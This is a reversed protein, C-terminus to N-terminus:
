NQSPKQVTIIAFCAVGEGLGVETLGEGTTATIGVQDIEIGMTDAINQRMEPITEFFRPRKAEISVAVHVIEQGKLTKVAEQLYVSSDTIGDNFCLEDAIGGLILIGTISSIANCIAHYVVDGDSNANFGPVGPFIVGGIVCPKSTETTIFRHSDQGLGTKSRMITGQKQGDDILIQKKELTTIFGYM